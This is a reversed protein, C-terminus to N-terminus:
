RTALIVTQGLRPDFQREMGVAIFTVSMIMLSLCAVPPLLWNWWIELYYFGLAHHIMLGLSKHSPDMLGLFALSAEMFVAMRMRAAFGIVFLPFLEPILHHWLIHGYGAGMQRAARIHLREKLTLAQARIGRAITPWALLGLIFALVYFPPRWLAAVIILIMVVPISLLIDAIRMLLLDFWGGYWAASGGIVVGLILACLGSICGFILSNRIGLLLGSLIDQGGDNIGLLHSASPPSMPKFSMDWPDFPSFYPGFLATAAWLTFLVLGGLVLRDRPFEVQYAM